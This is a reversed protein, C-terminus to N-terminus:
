VDEPLISRRFGYLEAIVTELRECTAVISEHTFCPNRLDSFVGPYQTKFERQKEVLSELRLLSSRLEYLTKLRSPEHLFAIVAVGVHRLMPKVEHDQEIARAFAHFQVADSMSPQSSPM